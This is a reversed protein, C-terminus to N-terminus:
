VRKSAHVVDVPAEVSCPLAMTFTSGEGPKSTVEMRGGHETVIQEVISLGIGTGKEGSAEAKKTRYFKTFINRLEKDDMGIGQDRVSIRVLAGSREISVWVETEAPSYKVANTLLNYVAYEMLERDGTLLETGTEGLHIMIQKREAIVRAREVCTTVIDRVPFSERKLEMQGASLREVDLFTQIMRALRKSESNIMQVMQTRKEDSLAYRGMLESSGQIATLPTKMEHTVFHIAQRYRARDSESDGLARRVAFYRYTAASVVPLWAASVSAFYPFVLGNRFLFAPVSHGALLLVGGLGYAIWDGRFWFILAATVALALCVVLVTLDSVPTLFKGQAITEFADRHVEVGPISLRVPTTWRDRAATLATIGLFVTKNRFQEALNPDRQLEAVTMATEPRPFRIRLPRDDGARAAPIRVGAVEVDDPSEIIPPRGRSCQFAVLGLAWRRDNRTVMELQIKRIVGDSADEDAHIHGVAAAHRRFQPLPDEWGSRVTDCPLVLNPTKEMAAELRANESSDGTDALIVDVAVARPKAPAILDLADALITRINRMGGFRNLTEEDIALVASEPTWSQPPYLGFLFDYAYNDIRSAFGTWGALVAVAAAVSVVALYGSLTWPTPRRFKTALGKGPWLKKL